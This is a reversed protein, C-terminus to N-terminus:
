YTFEMYKLTEVVTIGETQKFDSNAGYKTSGYQVYGIPQYVQLYMHCVLFPMTGGRGASAAPQILNRNAWLPISRDLNSSDYMRKAISEEM